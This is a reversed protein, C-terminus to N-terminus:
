PAHERYLIYTAGFPVSVMKSRYSSAAAPPLGGQTFVREIYSVEALIGKGSTHTVQYLEWPAGNDPATFSKVTRTQATSGDSATWKLGPSITVQM